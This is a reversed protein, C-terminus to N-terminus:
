SLRSFVSGASSATQFCAAELIQDGCSWINDCRGQKLEDALRGRLGPNGKVNALVDFVGISSMMAFPPLSIMQQRSMGGQLGHQEGLSGPECSTDHGRQGCLRRGCATIM